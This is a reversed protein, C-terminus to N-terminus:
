VAKEGRVELSIMRIVDLFYRKVHTRRRIRTSSDTPGNMLAGAM